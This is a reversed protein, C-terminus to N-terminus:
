SLRRLLDGCAEYIAHVPPLAASPLGLGPSHHLLPPRTDARKM